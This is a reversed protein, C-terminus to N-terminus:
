QKKIRSHQDVQRQQFFVATAIGYFMILYGSFVRIHLASYHNYEKETITKIFHGHNELVYIGDKIEPMYPHIVMIVIFNVIGHIFGIAAITTLLNHTFVKKFFKIHKAFDLPKTKRIEEMEKINRMFFITPLWVIFVGPILLWIFPFQRSIDYDVIITTLYVGLSITWGILPLIFLFKRM